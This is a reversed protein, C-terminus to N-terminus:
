LCKDFLKAVAYKRKFVPNHPFNRHLVNRKLHAQRTMSESLEHKYSHATPVFYRETVPLSRAHCLVAGKIKLGLISDSVRDLPPMWLIGTLLSGLKCSLDTGLLVPQHYMCERRPEASSSLWGTTLRSTAGSHSVSSFRVGTLIM